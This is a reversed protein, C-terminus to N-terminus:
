PRIYKNLHDSAAKGTIVKKGKHDYWPFDASEIQLAIWSKKMIEEDTLNLKTRYMALRGFLSNGGRTM